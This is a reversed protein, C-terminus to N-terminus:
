SSRDYDTNNIYGASSEMSIVKGPVGVVVANEPVDKTAVCNAGIAVNDGIIIKGIIKAGPGIYVNNGIQPFGEKKGRRTVGITVGHSLNCNEGIVAKENTVIGGHHGIYLGRGIRMKYSISIGFKIQYHYYILWAIPFLFIRWITHEHLYACLRMWFTYKYGPSFYYHYFHDRWRSNGAYRYLDASILELFTKVPM